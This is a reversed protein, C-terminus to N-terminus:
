ILEKARERDFHVDVAVFVREVSRGAAQALCGLVAL